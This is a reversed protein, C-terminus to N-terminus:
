AQLLYVAPRRSYQEGIEAKRWDAITRSRISESPLTLDCAVCLRTKPSLRLLSDLMAHNRYPTEIFIEVGGSKRSESELRALAVQREGEKAPLYGHFAFRQGNMGSAMLALLLASPGVLPMVRVDHRHALEVLASGPDAVAPCGAESMLGIDFGDLLPQLFQAITGGPTHENLEEILVERLPLPHGFLKLSARASKANEAVFHKLGNVISTVGTPISVELTATDGLTVPVLYLTGKGSM